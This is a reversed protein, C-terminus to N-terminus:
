KGCLLIQGKKKSEDQTSFAWESRRYTTKPPLKSKQTIKREGTRLWDFSAAAVHIIWLFSSLIQAILEASQSSSRLNERM